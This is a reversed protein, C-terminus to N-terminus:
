EVFRSFDNSLNNSKRGRKFTMMERRNLNHYLFLEECKEDSKKLLLCPALRVFCIGLNHRFIRIGNKDRSIKSFQGTNMM